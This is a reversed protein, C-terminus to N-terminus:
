LRRVEHQARMSAWRCLECVHGILFGLTVLQTAQNNTVYEWIGDSGLVICKLGQDSQYSQM